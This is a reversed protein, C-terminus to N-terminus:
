PPNRSGCMCLLSGSPSSSWRLYSLSFRPSSCALGLLQKICHSWIKIAQISSLSKECLRVLNPYLTNSYCITGSKPKSSRCLMSIILPYPSSSLWSLSVDKWVVIGEPMGDKVVWSRLMSRLKRRSDDVLADIRLGVHPLWPLVLSHLPASDKPSWDAVGKLLKPMVLQDMVNDFIFPPLLDGWAEFIRILPFPSSPSWENSQSWLSILFM